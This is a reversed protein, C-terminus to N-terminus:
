KAKYVYREDFEEKADCRFVIQPEENAETKYKAIGPKFEPDLLIQNSLMRAMPVMFYHVRDGQEEVVSRLSQEGGERGLGFFDFASLPSIWSRM